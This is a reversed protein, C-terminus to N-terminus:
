HVMSFMFRTQVVPTQLQDKEILSCVAAAAVGQLNWTLPLGALLVSEDPWTQPTNVTLVPQDPWNPGPLPKVVSATTSLEFFCIM